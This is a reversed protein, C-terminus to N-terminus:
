TTLKSLNFSLLSYDTSSHSFDKCNAVSYTKSLCLSMSLLVKRPCKFTERKFQELHIMWKPTKGKKSKGVMVFGKM